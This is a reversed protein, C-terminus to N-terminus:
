FVPRIFPHNLLNGLYCPILEMTYMQKTLIFHTIELEKGLTLCSSKYLYFSTSIRTYLIDETPCLINALQWDISQLLDQICNKYMCIEIDRSISIKLERDLYLFLGQCLNESNHRYM